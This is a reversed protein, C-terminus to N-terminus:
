TVIVTGRMFPHERCYYTFAGTTNFQFSFSAGSSLGGSDFMPSSTGSDPNIIKKDSVVSHPILFEKNTWVVTTGDSVTINSPTYAFNQITVNVTENQQSLTSSVADATVVSIMPLSMMAVLSFCILKLKMDTDMNYVVTKTSLLANINPEFSHGVVLM